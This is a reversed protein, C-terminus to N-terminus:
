ENSTSDDDQTTDLQGILTVEGVEEENVEEETVEQEVSNGGRRKIEATFLKKQGRIHRIKEKWAEMKSVPVKLSETKKLLDAECVDLQADLLELQKMLEERRQYLQKQMEQGKRIDENIEHFVRKETRMRNTLFRLRVSATKSLGYLLTHDEIKSIAESTINMMLNTITEKKEEQGRVTKKSKEQRFHMPIYESRENRQSM